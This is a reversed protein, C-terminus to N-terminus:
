LRHIPIFYIYERMNRKKIFLLLFYEKQKFDTKLLQYRIMSEIDPMIMCM